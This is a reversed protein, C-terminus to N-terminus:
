EGLILIRPRLRLECDLSREEHGLQGNLNNGWSWIRNQRDIALMFSNGVSVAVINNLEALQRLNNNSWDSDGHGLAGFQNNGWTWLNGNTDIAAHSGSFSNITRFALTSDILSGHSWLRRNIDLALGGSSATFRPTEAGDVNTFELLFPRFISGWSGLGWFRGEEDLIAGRECISVFAPLVSDADYGITIARPRLRQEYSESENGHGILGTGWTWLRGNRDLAISQGMGAAVAVINTFGSVNEIRRPRYEPEREGKGFSKKRAYIRM